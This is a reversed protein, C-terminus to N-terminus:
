YSSYFNNFRKIQNISKKNEVKNVRDTIVDDPVFAKNLKSKMARDINNSENARSRKRKLQNKHHHVHHHYHHHQTAIQSPPQITSVTSLHQLSVGTLAKADNDINLSTKVSNNNLIINNSNSVIIQSPTINLDGFNVNISQRFPGIKSKSSSPTSSDTNNSTNSTRTNLTPRQNLKTSSKNILKSWLDRKTKSLM